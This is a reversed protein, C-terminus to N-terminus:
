EGDALLKALRPGIYEAVLETIADSTFDFYVEGNKFSVEM